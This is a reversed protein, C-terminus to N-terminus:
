FYEQYFEKLRNTFRVMPTGEKNASFLSPAKQCSMQQALGISAAYLSHNNIRKTELSIKGMRTPLNITKEIHEILGTLLAGGGNVIIGANLFNVMKARVFGEQLQDVFDKIIPMIAQCVENQEVPAYGTDRKVLIEGKSIDDECSVVQAYSRKIDEALDFPLHLHDSIKMTLHDGGCPVVVIDKLLDDKFFVLDSSSAGISLFACGAKKEEQSLCAEAACLSSFSTSEVEFGAQHVAKIINSILNNKAVVLLMDAELKHGYLGLPNIAVNFGDVIYRTPFQHFLREDLNLGLLCAQQNIKKIDFSTIAKSGKDMLLILAASMRKDILHGGLGLSINKFKVDAKTTLDTLVRHICDSLERLDSVSSEQVGRTALQAVGLVQPPLGKQVKLLSAKIRQSGIDLGCFVKEKTM